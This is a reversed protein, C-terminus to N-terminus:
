AVIAFSSAMGVQAWKKKTSWNYPNEPDTDWDWTSATSTLKEDTSTNEGTELKPLGDDGNGTAAM